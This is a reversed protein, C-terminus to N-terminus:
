DRMRLYGAPDRYAGFIRELLEVTVRVRPVMRRNELFVAYLGETPASLDQLVPQLNGNVLDPAVLISNCQILGVGALAVQRLAVGSNVTLKGRPPHRIEEESAVFTWPRVRGHVLLGVSNHKQLDELAHPTGHKELYAPSACTVRMSKALPKAVVRSDRPEGIRVYVDLRQELIDPVEDSYQVDLELGPNSALFEQLMPALYLQGMAYPMGVRVHGEPLSRRTAVVQELEDVGQLIREVLQLCQQGDDTLAVGHTTRHLVQVGLWQELAAIKKTVASPGMSLAVGAGTFSRTQAVNAFTTLAALKDM